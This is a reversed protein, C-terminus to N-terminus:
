GANHQNTAMVFWLLVTASCPCCHSPAYPPPIFPMSFKFFVAVANSVHRIHAALSYCGYTNLSRLHLFMHVDRLVSLFYVYM